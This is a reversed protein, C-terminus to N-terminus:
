FIVGFLKSFIIDVVYVFVMVIVCTVITIITSEQLQDKKPWSVKKMENGVERVFTGISQKMLPEDLISAGVEPFPASLFFVSPQDPPV